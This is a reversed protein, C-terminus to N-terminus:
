PLSVEGVPQNSLLFKGGSEKVVHLTRADVVNKLRAFEGAYAFLYWRSPQNWLRAFEADDIFMQPAGPQWSGYELNMTRGNLLLTNRGTYFFVSDFSYYANAEILQGPPSQQLAVALPYSGMYSDFAVMAIRAAQLFFIMTIATVLVIRGVSKGALWLALAGFAFSFAAVALPLRLYAFAALTLDNIHGLSLTYMEPHQTLADALEGAAPTNRVALLLGGLAVFLVAFIGILVRRGIRVWQESEAMASGILLALAPYIPMSYYEQTTSFTFFVMVVAIWCLCMLRVRGARTVPRYQLKVAGPLFVSWPFLWLLNFLWFWLRPVTNYDFPYRRGLFRLIHENVFYFWFFGHYQGPGGQKVIDFYPPNRLTALIHWPAAIGIMVAIVPVLHLRKWSEWRFLQGTIAMYLMCAGIPFVIGILGKLLLGAAFVAGMLVALPPSSPQDPELQRLWIWIVAAITLVISADPILIRTFLFLGLCTSLAVGAYLGAREDGFGWRGFRYTLWCLLVVALALPLRASWDHVGFLHFSAAMEWYVLPPKDFFVIGNMRPSVWDGSVFMSRAIEAQAADVDDM